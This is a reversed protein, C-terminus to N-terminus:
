QATSWNNSIFTNRLNEDYNPPTSTQHLCHKEYLSMNDLQLQSYDFYPKIYWPTYSCFLLWRSDNTAIGAKHFMNDDIIAIDGPKLIMDQVGYKNTFEILKSDYLKHEFFPDLHSGPLAKTSNASNTPNLAIIVQFTIGNNLARSINNRDYFQPTDRHWESGIPHHILKDKIENNTQISSAVANRLTYNVSYFNKHIQQMKEGFLIQRLNEGYLFFNHVHFSSASSTIHHPYKDGEFAKKIDNKCAKIEELTFYDSIVTFGKSDLEQRNLNYISNM